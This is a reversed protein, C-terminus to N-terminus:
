PMEKKEIVEFVNSRAQVLLRSEETAPISLLAAVSTSDLLFRQYVLTAQRGEHRRDIRLSNIGLTWYLDALQEDISLVNMFRDFDEKSRPAHSRMDDFSQDIERDVTIWYRIKHETIDEADPFTAQIDSRVSEIMQVQNKNPYAHCLREYVHQHYKRVVNENRFRGALDMYVEIDNRMEDSIVLVHDGVEIESGNRQAFPPRRTEDYIIVPRSKFLGLSRGDDLQIRLDPDAASEISPSASAQAHTQPRWYVLNSLISFKTSASELFEKLQAVLESVPEHLQEFVSENLVFDLRQVVREADGASLILDIRKPLDNASCLEAVTQARAGIVVLRRAITPANRSFLEVTRVVQIVENGHDDFLPWDQELAEYVLRAQLASPM